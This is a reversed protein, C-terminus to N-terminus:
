LYHEPNPRFDSLCLMKRVFGAGKNYEQAYYDATGNFGAWQALENTLNRIDMYYEMDVHVIGFYPKNFECVLKHDKGVIIRYTEKRFTLKKRDENFAQKNEKRILMNDGLFFSYKPNTGWINAAHTTSDKGPRIM